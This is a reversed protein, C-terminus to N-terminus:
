LTEGKNIKDDILHPKDHCNESFGCNKCTYHCDQIIVEFGCVICEKKEIMIRKSFKLLVVLNEM